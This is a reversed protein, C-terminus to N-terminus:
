LANEVKGIIGKEVISFAMEKGGLSRHKRLFAIKGGTLNKLEILCKASYGLLNGGVMKVNDNKLSDYVQNTVLVPIKKVRAIESLASIQSELANDIEYPDYSQGREVRYLMGVTDLVILGIKDNVMDKIKEIQKKQEEFTTPRLFLCHELISGDGGALQGMREVSIGGETDVFLVKKGRKVAGIAGLLCLTTKGSGAPGYIATISDTEYGGSLFEDVERSGSSV